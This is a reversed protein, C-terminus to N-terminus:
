SYTYEVPVCANSCQALHVNSQSKKQLETHHETERSTEIGAGNASIRVVKACLHRAYTNPSGLGSM